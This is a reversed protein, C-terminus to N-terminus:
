SQLKKLEASLADLGSRVEGLTVAVSIINERLSAQASRLERIQAQIQDLTAHMDQTTKSQSM